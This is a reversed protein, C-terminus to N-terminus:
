LREALSVAAIFTAMGNEKCLRHRGLQGALVGLKIGAQDRLQQRLLVAVVTLAHHQIQISSRSHQLGKTATDCVGDLAAACKGAIKACTQAEWGSM